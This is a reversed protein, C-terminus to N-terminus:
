RFAQKVVEYFVIVPNDSDPNYNRLAEPYEKHPEASITRDITEPTLYGWFRNGYTGNILRHVPVEKGAKDELKKGCYIQKRASLDYLAIQIYGDKTFEFYLLHGCKYINEIGLSYASKILEVPHTKEEIKAFPLPNPLEIEYLAKLGGPSLEYVINDFSRCYYLSSGNYSFPQPTARFHYDAEARNHPFYSQEMDTGNKSLFLSHHLTSDKPYNNHYPNDYYYVGGSSAMAAPTPKPFRKTNFHKGNDSNYYLLTTRLNDYIVLEKDRENVAFANISTYEGPGAGVADIKFIFRGQMDYCIIRKLNDRLYIRDNKIQIEEVAGVLPDPALRVYSVAKLYNGLHEFNYDEVEVKITQMSDASINGSIQIETKGSKNRSCSCFLFLLALLYYQHKM